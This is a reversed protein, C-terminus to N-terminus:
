KKVCFYSIRLFLPQFHLFQKNLIKIKPNWDDMDLFARVTKIKLFLDFDSCGLVYPLSPKPTNKQSLGTSQLNSSRLANGQHATIQRLKTNAPSFFIFHFLNRLM